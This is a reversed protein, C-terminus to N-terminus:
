AKSAFENTEIKAGRFRRVNVNLSKKMPKMMIKTQEVSWTRLILELLVLQSMGTPYLRHVQRTSLVHNIEGRSLFRNGFHTVGSSEDVMMPLFILLGLLSARWYNMVISYIYTVAM